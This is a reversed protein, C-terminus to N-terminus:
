FKLMWFLFQVKINISNFNSPFNLFKLIWKIWIYNSLNIYNEKTSLCKHLWNIEPQQRSDSTIVSLDSARSDGNSYLSHGNWSSACLSERLKSICSACSSSSPLEPPPGAPLPVVPPGGRRCWLTCRSVRLSIDSRRSSSPARTTGSWWPLRRMVTFFVLDIRPMAMSPPALVLCGSGRIM